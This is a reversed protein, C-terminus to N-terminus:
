QIRGTDINDGSKNLNLNNSSKIILRKKAGESLRNMIKDLFLIFLIIFGM